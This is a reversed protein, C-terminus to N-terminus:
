GRMVLFHKWTIMLIRLHWPVQADNQRLEITRTAANEAGSVTGCCAAALVALCFRSPTKFVKEM